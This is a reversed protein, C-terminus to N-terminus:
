AAPAPPAGAFAALRARVRRRGAEYREVSRRDLAGGHFRLAVGERAQREVDAPVAEGFARHHAALRRLAVTRARGEVADGLAGALPRELLRQAVSSRAQDPSPAPAAANPFADVVWPNATRLARARGCLPEAQLLERTVYANAPPLALRDAALYYNPCFLRRRTARSVTALALFTTAVRGPAAIVLLDADAGPAADGAAVSGTLALGRVFPAHRLVGAVRRTRRRLRTARRLRDPRRALLAERGRLCWLGDRELVVERLAPDEHLARRWEKRGIARRAGRWAEDTTPACDFADAYLVGDLLALRADVDGTM